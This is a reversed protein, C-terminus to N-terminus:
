KYLEIPVVSRCMFYLVIFSLGERELEGLGAKCHVAVVGEARDMINLFRDVIDMSPTTGDVFYMDHHKIG